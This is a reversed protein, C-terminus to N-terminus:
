FRLFGEVQGEIAKLTFEDNLRGQSDIKEIVQSVPVKDHYVNVKLYHLIGVLHDMGRTNGGRGTAVGVLAVKKGALMEQPLADIFAKLVGPFSGNYEPVVMVIRQAPLIFRDLLQQFKESRSGFYDSFLFDRPLEELSFLGLEIGKKEAMQLYAEAIKRTNSGPRHTGSILTIM